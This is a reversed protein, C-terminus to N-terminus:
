RPTLKRDGRVSGGQRMRAAMKRAGGATLVRAMETLPVGLRGVM